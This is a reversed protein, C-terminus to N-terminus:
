ANSETVDQPKVKFVNTMEDWASTATRYLQGIGKGMLGLAPGPLKSAWGERSCPYPHVNEQYSDREEARQACPAPIPRKPKRQASESPPPTPDDECRLSLLAFMAETIRCPDVLEEEADPLPIADGPRVPPAPM